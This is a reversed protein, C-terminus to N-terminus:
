KRRKAAERLLDTILRESARFRTARLATIATELNLLGREDGLRLVGLTGTVRLGLSNAVTTGRREDILVTDADLEAALSIAQLEGVDLRSEALLHTPLQVNLWPPPSVAWDRVAQPSGPHALEELVAPVTWVSRFLAPLVGIHGILVLYNIPSTDSVVLM